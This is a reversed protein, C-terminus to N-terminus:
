KRLLKRLIRVHAPPKGITFSFYDQDIAGFRHYFTAISPIRSGGFDFIKYESSSQLIVQDFLYFMAGTTRGKESTTGKLYTIRDKFFWFCAVAVIEQQNTVGVVKLKNNKKGAVLLQFLRSYDDDRFEAIDAGKEKRFFRILDDPQVDCMRLGAETAKRIMRRTNESYTGPLESHLEPLKKLQYVWKEAMTGEPYAPLMQPLCLHMDHAEPLTKLIPILDPAVDPRHLFAQYRSFFPQYINFYGYRRKWAFPLAIDGSVSMVASWNECIADLYFSLHYIMGQSSDAVLADWKEDDIEKRHVIRYEQESSM